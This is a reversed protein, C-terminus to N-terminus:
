SPQADDTPMEAREGEEGGEANPVNAWHPVTFRVTGTAADVHTAAPASEEGVGDSAPGTTATTAARREATRVRAREKKREAAERHRQLAPLVRERFDGFDARDLAELVDDATVTGRRRQRALDGALMTLYSVFVTVSASCALMADKELLFRKAGDGAATEVAEGGPEQALEDMKRRIIRRLTAVPLKLEEDMELKISSM